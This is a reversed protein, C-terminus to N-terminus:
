GDFFDARDPGYAVSEHDYGPTTLERAQIPISHHDPSVLEHLYPYTSYPSLIKLM